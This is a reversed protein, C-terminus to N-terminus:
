GGVARAVAPVASSEDGQRHAGLKQELEAREKAPPNLTLARQWQWVAEQDRGLANYVDGLHHNVTADGPELAAATELERVARELDGQLYYAWGLSDRIAGSQPKLRAARQILDMAEDVHLGRDLWSYGLYNLAEANNPQVEIVYQLDKEALDWKGLRERVMGRMMWYVTQSDDLHLLRNLTAESEAFRSEVRYVDALAALMRTNAPEQTLGSKLIGIAGDVDGMRRLAFAQVSVASSYYVSDKPVETIVKQASELAGRQSLVEALLVRAADLDPNLELAMHLLIMAVDVDATATMAAAPGFISMSAGVRVDDETRKPKQGLTNLAEIVRPHVGYAATFTTYIEEAEDVRGLRELLHGFAVVNHATLLRAQWLAAYEAEAEEWRGAMDLIRAKTTLVFADDKAPVHELTKLAAEVDGPGLHAWAGLIPGASGASGLSGTEAYAAQAAKFDRRALAHTGIVFNALPAMVPDARLSKAVTKAQSLRGQRLHELFLRHAVAESDPAQRYAEQLFDVATPFNAHQSAWEGALFNGYARKEPPLPQTETPLSACSTLLFFGAALGALRWTRTSVYTRIPFRPASM